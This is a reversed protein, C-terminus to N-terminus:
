TLNTEEREELAYGAWFEQVLMVCHVHHLSLVRDLVWDGLSGCPVNDMYVCLGTRTVGTSSVM